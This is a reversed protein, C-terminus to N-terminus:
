LCITFILNHLTLLLFDGKCTLKILTELCMVALTLTQNYVSSCFCTECVQPFWLDLAYGTWAHFCVHVCVNLCIFVYTFSFLYVVFISSRLLDAFPAGLMEGPHHTHFTKIQDFVTLTVDYPRINECNRILFIRPKKSQM